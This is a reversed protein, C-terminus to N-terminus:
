GIMLATQQAVQLNPVSEITHSRDQRCQTAAASNHMPEEYLFTRVAGFVRHNLAGYFTLAPQPGATIDSSYHWLQSHDQGFAGAIEDDLARAPHHLRRRRIRANWNPCLEFWYSASPRIQRASYSM